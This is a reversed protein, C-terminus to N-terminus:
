LLVHILRPYRPYLAHVLAISEQTRTVFQCVYSIGGRHEELNEISLQTMDLGTM